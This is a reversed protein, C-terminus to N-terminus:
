GCGRCIFDVISHVQLQVVLLGSSEWLGISSSCVFRKCVRLIGRIHRLFGGHNSPVVLRSVSHYRWLLFEFM